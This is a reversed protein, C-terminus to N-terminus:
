SEYLRLDLFCQPAKESKMFYRTEDITITSIGNEVVTGDAYEIRVSISNSGPPLVDSDVKKDITFTGLWATIEALHEGSVEIGESAPSTFFSIGSINETEFVPKTKDINDSSCGALALVCVLAFVFTLYKKM